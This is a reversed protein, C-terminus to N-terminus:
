QPPVLRGDSWGLHVALEWAAGLGVPLVFGLLLSRLHRARSRPQTSLDISPAQALTMEVATM